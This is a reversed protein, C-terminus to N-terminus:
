LCGKRHVVCTEHIANIQEKMQASNVRLTDLIAWIKELQMSHSKVKSRVEGYAVAATLIAFLSGLEAATIEVGAIIM